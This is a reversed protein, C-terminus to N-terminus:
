PRPALVPLGEKVTSRTGSGFGCRVGETVSHHLNLSSPWLPAHIGALSSLSGHWTWSEFQPKLLGPFAVRHTSELNPHPSRTEAGHVHCTMQVEFCAGRWPLFPLFLLSLVFLDVGPVIDIPLSKSPLIDYYHVVYLRAVGM